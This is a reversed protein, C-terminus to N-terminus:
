EAKGTSAAEAQASGILVAQGAVETLTVTPADERQLMRELIVRGSKGHSILHVADMPATVCVDGSVSAGELSQFPAAFGLQWSGSVSSFRATRSRIGDVQSSGSITRLGLREAQLGDSLIHGTVTRLKAEIATLNRTRLDGSVTELCLDSGELGEARLPGAITSATVAGRWNRPLRVFIQMWRVLDIRPTLGYSPQEVSLTGGELSVKLDDVDADTGSVILQVQDVDDASIELTAWALRIELRAVKDPAFRENRNM